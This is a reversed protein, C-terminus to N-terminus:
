QRTARSCGEVIMEMAQGGQPAPSAAEAPTGVVEQVLVGRLYARGTLPRYAPQVCNLELGGDMRDYEINKDFTWQPMAFQIRLVGRAMDGERSSPVAGVDIRRGDRDSVNRWHKVQAAWDGTSTDSSAASVSIIPLPSWSSVPATPHPLTHTPTTWLLPSGAMAVSTMSVSTMAGALTTCCLVRLAVSILM